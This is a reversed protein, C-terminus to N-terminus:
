ILNFLKNDKFLIIPNIEENIRSQSKIKLLKILKIHIFLKANKLLRKSVNRNIQNNTWSVREFSEINKVSIKTDVWFIKNINITKDWFQSNGM